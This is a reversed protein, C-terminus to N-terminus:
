SEDGAAASILADIMESTPSVGNKNPIVLRTVWDTHLGSLVLLGGATAEAVTALGLATKTSVGTEAVIQDAVAEIGDALPAFWDGNVDVLGDNILSRVWSQRAIDLKMDPDTMAAAVAKATMKGITATANSPIVLPKQSCGSAFKTACERLFQQRSTETKTAPWDAIFQLMSGGGATELVQAQSISGYPDSISSNADDSMLVSAVHGLSKQKRETADEDDDVTGTLLALQRSLDDSHRGIDDVDYLGDDDTTVAAIHAIITSAIPSWERDGLSISPKGVDLALTTAALPRSLDILGCALAQWLVVAERASTADSWHGNLVGGIAEVFTQTNGLLAIKSALRAAVAATPSAEALRVARRSAEYERRGAATTYWNLDADSVVAILDEATDGCIGTTMYNQAHAQCDESATSFDSGLKASLAVLFKDFPSGKTQGGVWPKLLRRPGREGVREAVENLDSENFLDESRGALLAKEMETVGAAVVAARDLTLTQISEQTDHTNISTMCTTVATGLFFKLVGSM